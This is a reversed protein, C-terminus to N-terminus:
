VRLRWVVVALPLYETVCLRAALFMERKGQDREEGSITITILCGVSLLHRSYQGRGILSLYFIKWFQLRNQLTVLCESCLKTKLFLLGNRGGQGGSVDGAYLLALCSLM